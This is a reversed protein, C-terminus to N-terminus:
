AAPQYKELILRELQAILNESDKYSIFESTTFRLSNSVANKEQHVCIIPRHYADAWGLEIEQGTSPCSVEAIMLDCHEIREKTIQEPKNKEQPLFVDNNEYLRSARVAAYFEGKWPLASAHTIVIKTATM